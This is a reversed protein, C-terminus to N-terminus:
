ETAQSVESEANIYKQAVSERLLQNRKRAVSISQILKTALSVAAASHNEGVDVQDDFQEVVVDVLFFLVSHSM